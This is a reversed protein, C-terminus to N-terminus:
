EEGKPANFSKTEKKKLEDRAKKYLENLKVYQQQVKEHEEKLKELEEKLKSYNSEIQKLREIEEKEEKISALFQLSEAPKIYILNGVQFDVLNHTKLFTLLERKARITKSTFAYNMEM